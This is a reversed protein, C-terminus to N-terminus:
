TNLVCGCPKAKLIVFQEQITVLLEDQQDSHDSPILSHDIPTKHNFGSSWGRAKFEEVLQDHRKALAFLKGQWRQTEPHQRYGQKDLALINFLGHLERHEGLLHKDCLKSPHVDWVRM